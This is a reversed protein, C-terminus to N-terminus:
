LPHNIESRVERNINLDEEEEDPSHRLGGLPQTKPIKFCLLRYHEQCLKEKGFRTKM